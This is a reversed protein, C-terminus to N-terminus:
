IIITIGHMANRKIFAFLPLSLSSFRVEFMKNYKSPVRDWTNRLRSVSSHGLGSIVAFM